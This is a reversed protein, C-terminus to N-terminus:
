RKRNMYVVIYAANYIAFIVTLLALTVASGYHEGAFFNGAMVALLVNFIVNFIIWIVIYGKM